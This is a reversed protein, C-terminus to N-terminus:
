EGFYYSGARQIMRRSLDFFENRFVQFENDPVKCQFLSFVVMEAAMCRTAVVLESPADPSNPMETYLEDVMSYAKRFTGGEKAGIVNLFTAELNRNSDGFDISNYLVNFFVGFLYPRMDDLKLVAVMKTKESLDASSILASYAEGVERHLRNALEVNKFRDSKLSQRNDAGSTNLGFGDPDRKRVGALRERKNGQNTKTKEPTKEFNSMFTDEYEFRRVVEPWDRCFDSYCLRWAMNAREREPIRMDYTDNCLKAMYRYAHIFCSESSIMSAEVLFYVVSVLLYVVSFVWGGLAYTLGLVFALVIGRGAIFNFVRAFPRLVRMIVYAASYSKLCLGVVFRSLMATVAFWYINCGCSVAVVAAVFGVFAPLNAYCEVLQLAKFPSFKREVRSLYVFIDEVNTRIKLGRPTYVCAM